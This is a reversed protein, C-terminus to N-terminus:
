PFFFTVSPSAASLASGRTCAGGQRYGSSVVTSSVQNPLGGEGASDDDRAISRLAEEAHRRANLSPAIEGGGAPADLQEDWARPHAACVRPPAVPPVRAPACDDDDRADEDEDPAEVEDDCAATSSKTTSIWGHPLRGRWIATAAPTADKQRPAQYTMSPVTNGSSRVADPIADSAAPAPPRAATCRTAAGATSRWASFCSIGGGGTALYASSHPM